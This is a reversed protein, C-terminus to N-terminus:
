AHSGGVYAARVAPDRMVAQPLGDGIKRGNDLVVLRRCVRLVEGLNHEILVVTLGQRGDAPRHLAAITDAIAAAEIHNLGALPEDLLLIEPEVALARAVELRKLHGMPLSSPDHDAADAIGLLELLRLARQRESERGLHLLAALPRRTRAKGAALMVNEVATMNRFPRVLQQSLGLGRRVRLHTPLRTIEAGNLLVRGHDPRMVGVILRLCTTKGAGNPGILGVFDGREVAFSVGDVATVGGFRMSVRRLELLASM